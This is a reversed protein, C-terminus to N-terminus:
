TTETNDNIVSSYYYIQAHQTCHVSMVNFSTQIDFRFILRLCMHKAVMNILKWNFIMSLGMHMHQLPLYM